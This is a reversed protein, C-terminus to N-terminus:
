TKTYAQKPEDQRSSETSETDDYRNEEKPKLSMKLWLKNLYMKLEEEEPIGQICLDACKTNYAFDRINSENKLNSKEAQQKLQTIEM